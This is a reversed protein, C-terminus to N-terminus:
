ALKIGAENLSRALELNVRNVTELYPATTSVYFVVNVPYDPGSIGTVGAEPTGEVGPGNSCVTKIITLAEELRELSNERSLNITQTVKTNPDGSINVIPTSAFISNPIIVTNNDLTKLRSTRLGMETIFGDFGSIKIRDNIKFPKDVFVTISGFFNALTDKSALAIAAGGLGLGALIANINYGLINLVMVFALLWIVTGAVKKLIPQLETGTKLGRIDGPGPVYETIIANILKEVTYAVVLVMAMSFVRGIWLDILSGFSLFKIGLSIGFFFILLVLPNKVVVLIMDGIGSKSKSFIKKILGAILWSIIKGAIFGGIVFALASIWSKVTNQLIMYNLFNDM